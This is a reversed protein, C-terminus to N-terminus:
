GYMAQPLFTALGPLLGILVLLVLMALWFPIIGRYIAGVPIDPAVGKVVFTILGVPPSILGMELTIVIMVGFWIMDVGLSALVPQVLPIMLVLIAFADMFTGLVIVMALLLAIVQAASWGQEGVWRAVAFPVETFGLFVRFVYAGILILFVTGCATLTSAVVEGLAERTLSRRVLAM